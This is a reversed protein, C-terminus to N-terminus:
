AQKQKQEFDLKAHKYEPGDPMYELETIYNNKEDIVKEYNIHLYVLERVINTDKLYIQIYEMADESGTKLIEMFIKFGEKKNDNKQYIKFLIDMIHKSDTGNKIAM